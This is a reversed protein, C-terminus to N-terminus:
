GLGLRVQGFRGRLFGILVVVVAASIGEDALAELTAPSLGLFELSTEAGVGVTMFRLELTLPVPELRTPDTSPMLRVAVGAQIQWAGGRRLEVETVEELVLAHWRMSAAVRPSWADTLALRGGGAAVDARLLLRLRARVMSEHLLPMVATPDLVTSSMALM